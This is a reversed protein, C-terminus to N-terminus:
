LGIMRRQDPHLKDILLPAGYRQQYYAMFGSLDAKAWQYLTGSVFKWIKGGEGDDTPPSFLEIVQTSTVSGSMIDYPTGYYKGPNAAVEAPTPATQQQQGSSVLFSDWQAPPVTNKALANIASLLINFQQDTM